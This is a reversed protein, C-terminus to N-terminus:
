EVVKPVLFFGYNQDPANLLVDEKSNDLHPKDERMPTKKLIEIVPNTLPETKEVDIAKLQEIWDFVKLLSETVEAEKSEHVSLSSLKEIRQLDEKSIKM